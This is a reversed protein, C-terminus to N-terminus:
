SFSVTTSIKVNKSKLYLQLLVYSFFISSLDNENISITAINGSVKSRYNQEPSSILEVEYIKSLENWLDINKDDILISLHEKM